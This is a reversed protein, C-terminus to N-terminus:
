TAQWLRTLPRIRKYKDPNDVVFDWIDDPTAAGPHVGFTKGAKDFAHAVLWSCIPYDGNQTLRRFIYAGLLLWDLFHGLIKLFGYTKGVQERAEAVVIDIEEPTLNTPRYIAVDDKRPPGYGYWLRVERVKILAEVIKSTQYDGSSVIIGVHNVKTRKEGITRTFVRIARSIFSHGRTMFVDGPLLQTSMSGEKTYHAQRRMLGQQIALTGM